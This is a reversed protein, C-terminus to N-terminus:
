PRPTGPLIKMEGIYRHYHSYTATMRHTNDPDHAIFRSPLLFTKDGLKQPAYDIAGFYADGNLEAAGAAITRETHLIRGTDPEAIVVRRFGDPIKACAPNTFQQKLTMELRVTQPTPGPSLEYDFCERQQWLKFGVLGAFGGTVFYPLQSTSYNSPARFGDLKKFHRQELFPANPNSTRIERLTSEVQEEHRVHGKRNLTQSTIKEDCSFSSLTTQYHAAYTDLRDLLLNLPPQNQASSTAPALLLALALLLKVPSLELM